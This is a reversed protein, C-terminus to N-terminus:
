VGDIVFSKDKILFYDSGLICWIHECLALTAKVQKM